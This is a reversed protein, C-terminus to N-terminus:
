VKATGEGLSRKTDLYLDRFLKLEQRHMEKGERKIPLLWDPLKRLMPLLDLM